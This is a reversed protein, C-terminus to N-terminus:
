TKRSAPEKRGNELSKCVEQIRVGTIRDEQHGGKEVVLRSVRGSTKLQGSEPKSVLGYQQNRCGRISRLKTEM